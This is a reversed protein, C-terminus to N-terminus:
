VFNLTLLEPSFSAANPRKANKKKEKKTNSDCPGDGEDSTDNYYDGTTEVVATAATEAAQPLATAADTDKLTVAKGGKKKKVRKIIYETESDSDSNQEVTIKQALKEYELKRAAAKEQKAVRVLRLAELQAPTATKKQKLEPATVTGTAVTNAVTEAAEPATSATDPVPEQEVPASMAVLEIELISREVICLLLFNKETARM